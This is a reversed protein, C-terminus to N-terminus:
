VDDSLLLTNRKDGDHRGCSDRSTDASAPKRPSLLAMSPAEVFSVTERTRGNYIKTILHPWFVAILM